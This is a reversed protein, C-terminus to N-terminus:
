IIRYIYFIKKIMSGPLQSDCTSTFILPEDSFHKISMKLNDTLIEGSLIVRDVWDNVLLHHIKKLFIMRQNNKIYYLMITSSSPASISAM